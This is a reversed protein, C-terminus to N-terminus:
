WTESLNQNIEHACIVSSLGQGQAVFDIFTHYKISACHSVRSVLPSYTKSFTFAEEIVIVHVFEYKRKGYCLHM